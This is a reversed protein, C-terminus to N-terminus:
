KKLLYILRFLKCLNKVKMIRLLRAKIQMSIPMCPHIYAPFYPLLPQEKTLLFTTIQINLVHLYYKSIDKKEKESLHKKKTLCDLIPLHAALLMKMERGSSTATLGKSNWCYNYGVISSTAITKTHQLIKPLTYVDEFVFGIPFRVTNFINQRYIKNWAYTHAYSNAEFWYQRADNYIKDELCLLREKKGGVFEKASYEIMDVEPHESLFAIIKKYIDPLLFDDSDVFTIYEGTAIDLGANRADSLGGNTKHIINIHKDRKAWDDCIAPCSDTSGDNVLILEFSELNQNLISEICRSLWQEVNYVPVIISLKIKFTTGDSNM